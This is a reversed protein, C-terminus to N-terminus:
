SEKVVLLGGSTKGPDNNQIWEGLGLARRFLDRRIQTYPAGRGWALFKAANIAPVSGGPLKRGKTDRVALCLFLNARITFVFNRWWESNHGDKCAPSLCSVFQGLQGRRRAHDLLDVATKMGQPTARGNNILVRCVETIQLLDYLLLADM